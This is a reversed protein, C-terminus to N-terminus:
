TLNPSLLDLDRNWARHDIFEISISMLISYRLWHELVSIVKQKDSWDCTCDDYFHLSLATWLALTSKLIARWSRCVLGLILPAKNVTSTPLEENDTFFEFIIEPPL